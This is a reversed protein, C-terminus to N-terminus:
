SHVGVGYTEISNLHGNCHVVWNTSSDGGSAIDRAVM